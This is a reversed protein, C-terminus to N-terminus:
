RDLECQVWTQLRERETESSGGVPPMDRDPSAARALIREFHRAAGAETDFDVGVPAGARDEDTLAQHHCGMCWSRLYGEGFTEWTLRACPDSTDISAVSAPEGCSVVVLAGLSRWWPM